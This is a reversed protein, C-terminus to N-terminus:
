ILAWKQYRWGVPRGEAGINLLNGWESGNTALMVLRNAKADEM